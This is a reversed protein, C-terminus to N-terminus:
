SKKLAVVVHRYPEEGESYTTVYKDNQLVSHIIRREYANMAELSVSKRTKKVKHAINKALNEITDRRRKRYNETDIKVRVYDETGKNAVIRALDQLADLTKGRKGILVGMEPGKLEIDMDKTNEDYNSIIEVELNMTKCVDSIFDRVKDEVTEKKKAKIVAKKSNIGLFGTSGKEIVEVDLMESSVEFHLAAQMIADDVTKATFEIYEM